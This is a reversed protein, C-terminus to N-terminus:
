VCLEGWSNDLSITIVSSLEDNIQSVVIQLDSPNNKYALSSEKVDVYSFTNSYVSPPHKDQEGKNTASAATVM